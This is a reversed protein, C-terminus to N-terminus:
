KELAKELEERPIHYGHDDKLSRVVMCGIAFAMGGYLAIYALPHDVQYIFGLGAIFFGFGMLFPLFSGNPMHIDNLPEGPTMKGKGEMKEIWLPDLGRVLPLQEWNYYPPPSPITWELTRGDWPDASAIEGKKATHIINYT